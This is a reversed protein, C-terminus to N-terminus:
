FHSPETHSKLRPGPSIVNLGVTVPNWLLRGPDSSIYVIGHEHDMVMDEAYKIDDAHKVQASGQEFPYWSAPMRHTKDFHRAISGRFSRLSGAM